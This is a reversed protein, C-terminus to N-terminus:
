GALTQCSSGKPASIAMAEKNQFGLDTGPPGHVRKAHVEVLVYWHGQRPKSMSDILSQGLHDWIEFYESYLFGFRTQLTNKCAKCFLAERVCRWRWCLAEHALQMLENAETTKDTM